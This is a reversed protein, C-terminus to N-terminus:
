SIRLRGLRGNRNFGEFLVFSLDGDFELPDTSDLGNSRYELMSLALTGVTGRGICLPLIRPPSPPAPLLSRPRPQRAYDVRISKSLRSPFHSKQQLLRFSLSSYLVPIRFEFVPSRHLMERDHKTKVM